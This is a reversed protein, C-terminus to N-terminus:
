PKTGAFAGVAAVHDDVLFICRQGSHVTQPSDFILKVKGSRGPQIKTASELSAKLLSGGVIVTCGGSGLDTTQLPSAEEAALVYLDISCEASDVGSPTMPRAAAKLFSRSLAVAGKTAGVVHAVKAQESDFAVISDDGQCGYASLLERAELEELELLEPDDIEDSHTFAVWVAPIAMHRAFIIHERHVPMLGDRADIAIVALDATSCSAAHAAVLDSKSTSITVGRDDTTAIATVEAAADNSKADITTALRRLLALRTRDGLLAIRISRVDVASPARQQAKPQDSDKCGICSLAAIGLILPPLTAAAM